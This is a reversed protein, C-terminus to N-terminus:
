AHSETWTFPGMATRSPMPLTNLLREVSCPEALLDIIWDLPPCRPEDRGRSGEPTATSRWCAARTMAAAARRSLGLGAARPGSAAPTPPTATPETMPTRSSRRWVIRGDALRRASRGSMKGSDEAGPSIIHGRRGIGASARGRRSEPPDRQDKPLPDTRSSDSSDPHGPCSTTWTACPSPLRRPLDHARRAPQDLAAEQPKAARVVLQGPWGAVRRRPHRDKRGGGPRHGIPAPGSASAPPVRGPSPM